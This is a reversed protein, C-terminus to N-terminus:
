TTQNDQEGVVWQGNVEKGMKQYRVVAKQEVGNLNRKGVCVNKMNVSLCNGGGRGGKM